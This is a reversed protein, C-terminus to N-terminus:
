RGERYWTSALLMLLVGLGAIMVMPGAPGFTAVAFANFAEM